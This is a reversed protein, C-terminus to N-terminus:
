RSVAANIKAPHTGTQVIQDDSVMDGAQQALVTGPASRLQVATEVGDFEVTALGDDSISRVFLAVSAWRSVKGDPGVIVQHEAIYQGIRKIDSQCSSCSTSALRRAPEISGDVTVTALASSYAAVTNLATIGAPTRNLYSEVIVLRTIGPYSTRLVPGAPRKARATPTARAASRSPVSTVREPHTAAPSPASPSTQTPTPASPGASVAAPAPSPLYPTPAPTSSCAALLTGSVLVAGVARAM